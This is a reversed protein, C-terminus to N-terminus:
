RHRRVAATQRPTSITALPRFLRLPADALEIFDYHRYFAAAQEDKADVILAFATIESEAARLLADVLLAGGLGQGKFTEDVALRGLRIAPVAEYRPLKRAIDAPLGTMPVSAPALTYYGAIRLRDDIAVFCAAVRRRIDQSVQERLYRNLVESGCSFASRDYAPDFVVVRLPPSSM